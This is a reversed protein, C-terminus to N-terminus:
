YYFCISNNGEMCLKTCRSSVNGLQQCIDDFESLLAVLEHAYYIRFVGIGELLAKTEPLASGGENQIQERLREAARNAGSYSFSGTSDVYVARMGAAQVAMTLRLCLETQGEGPQGVIECVSGSEAALGQGGLLRDLGKVRTSVGRITQAENSLVWGTRISPQARALSSILRVESASFIQLLESSSEVEEFDAARVFGNQLLRTKLHVPLPLSLVPRSM